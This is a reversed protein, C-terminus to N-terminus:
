LSTQKISLHCSTVTDEEEPSSAGGRRGRLSASLATMIGVRALTVSMMVVLMGDNAPTVAEMPPEAGVVDVDGAGDAGGEISLKASLM